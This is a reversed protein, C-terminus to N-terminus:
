FISRQAANCCGLVHHTTNVSLPYLSTPTYFLSSDLTLITCRSRQLFTLMEDASPQLPAATHGLNGVRCLKLSRLSPVVLHPLLVGRPLSLTQLLPHAVVVTDGAAYVELESRNAEIALTHVSTLHPLLSLLLPISMMSITLHSLQKWPFSQFDVIDGTSICRAISLRRLSAANKFLSLTQSIASDHDSRLDVSVLAPLADLVSSPPDSFSVSRWRFSQSGVLQSCPSSSVYLGGVTQRGYNIDLPATKGSYRLVHHLVAEQM